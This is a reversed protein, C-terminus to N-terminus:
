YLYLLLNFLYTWTLFYSLCVVSYGGDLNLVLVSGPGQTGETSQEAQLGKETVIIRVVTFM